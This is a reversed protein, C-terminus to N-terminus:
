TFLPAVRALQSAVDSAMNKWDATRGLCESLAAFLALMDEDRVDGMHGIRLIKGKLKDQGGMITINFEKELRDRIEASDTPTTLATVSPSPSGSYVGMRLRTGVDRTVEALLACRDALQKQRGPERLRKLV